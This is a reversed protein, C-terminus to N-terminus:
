TAKLRTRAVLRRAQDSHGLLAIRVAWAGFINHHFMNTDAIDQGQGTVVIRPGVDEANGLHFQAVLQGGAFLRPHDQGGLRGPGARRHHQIVRRVRSRLIMPRGLPYGDAESRRNM